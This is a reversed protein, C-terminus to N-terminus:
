HAGAQVVQAFISPDAAGVWGSGFTKYSGGDCHIYVTGGATTIAAATVEFTASPNDLTMVATSTDVDITTNSSDTLQVRMLWFSYDDQLSDVNDLYVNLVLDGTYNTDPTVDFLSGEAIVGRFKGLVTYNPNDTTNASVSCYDAGGDTVTITTTTTTQTYAFIASTLILTLLFSGVIAFPKMSKRAFQLEDGETLVMESEHGRKLWKGNLKARARDTLDFESGFMERVETVTKGSLEVERNHEGYNIKVM